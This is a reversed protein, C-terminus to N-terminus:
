RNASIVEGIDAHMATAVFPAFRDCGDYLAEYPAGMSESPPRIRLLLAWRGNAVDFFRDGVSLVPGRSQDKRLLNGHKDYRFGDEEIWSM